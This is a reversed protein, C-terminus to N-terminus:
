GGARLTQCQTALVDWFAKDQSAAFNIRMCSSTRREPYFLHGPAILWGHDLMRQGLWETDVGADLWGFLGHPPAAFHLGKQHALRVCRDRAADLRATVAEAHRRLWGQQLCLAMAREPPTATNLGAILKTDLLAEVLGQPAAVCGVRWGPAVIKAFGTIYITRQLGDLAAYRPSHSPAFNAYTDDEVILFDHRSALQLVRHAQALNLSHGTPNHLVSVTSYYRPKHQAALQELVDLDVGESSRPVPLLRVGMRALRAFEVSWGPADVLVADGPRLLTHAVVDLAHTAGATSIVQGAQAAIGQLRMHQVLMERLLPDGKATGYIAGNAAGDQAIARRLARALLGEDLWDQPLVGSAPSPKGSASVVTSERIHRGAHAAAGSLRTQGYTGFFAVARGGEGDEAHVGAPFMTRILSGVDNPLLAESTGTGTEASAADQDPRRSTATKERVFFGRHRRAEVLGQAMLQDYAAVVTHPSVGYRQACSRVSPLRMGPAMLGCVIRRAFLTALQEVLPVGSQRQLIEAGEAPAGAPMSAPVPPRLPPTETDM